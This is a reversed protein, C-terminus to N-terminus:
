GALVLRLIRVLYEILEPSYRAESVVVACLTSCDIYRPDIELPQATFEQIKPELLKLVKQSLKSDRSAAFKGGIVACILSNRLYEERESGLTEYIERAIERDAKGATLIRIAAIHCDYSGFPSFNTGFAIAWEKGGAVQIVGATENFEIYGYMTRHYDSYDAFKSRPKSPLRIERGGLEEILLEYAGRLVEKASIQRKAM